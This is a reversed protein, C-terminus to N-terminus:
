IMRMYPHCTSGLIRSTTLNMSGPCIFLHHRKVRLSNANWDGNLNPKTDVMLWCWLISDYQSSSVLCTTQLLTSCM